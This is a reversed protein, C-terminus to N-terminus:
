EAAILAEPEGPYAPNPLSKKIGDLLARKRSAKVGMTTLNMVEIVLAVERVTTLRDKAEVKARAKTIIDAAIFFPENEGSSSQGTNFLALKERVRQEPWDHTLMLYAVTAGISRKLIPTVINTESDKAVDIATDLVANHERIAAALEAESPMAGDKDGRRVLYSTASKLITEKMRTNGIGDLKAHDSAHRRRGSDQASIADQKIGFQVTIREWVFNGSLAVAALRHQGDEVLGNDYIGLSANIQKWLGHQIRRQLELTWSATWDRNHSNFETFLIAAMGTSLDFAQPRYIGKKAEAVLDLVKRRDESTAAAAVAAIRERLDDEPKRKIPTTIM